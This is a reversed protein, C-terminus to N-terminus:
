RRWRTAAPSSSPASAPAGQPMAAGEATRGSLYADRGSARAGQRRRRGRPFLGRRISCLCALKAGSAKFAAIMADRSAFGDNTSPKSAAPRSSHRPSHRARPSSPSPASIPSSFRPRAGTRALMRDSADRLREFPEALRIPLLPPYKINAVPPGLPVPRLDLVQVPAEALNPYDSTGTLVDKRQATAAEHEARVKAVKEQIM